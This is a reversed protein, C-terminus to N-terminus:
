VTVAGPALLGVSFLVPGDNRPSFGSVSLVRLLKVAREEAVERKQFPFRADHARRPM